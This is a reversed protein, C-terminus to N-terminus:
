RRYYGWEVLRRYAYQAYKGQRVIQLYNHYERAAEERNLMGEQSLGKLFITHPNQPLLRQSSSFDQYAEQFDRTKLRAFGSLHYAQAEQSFVAKAM